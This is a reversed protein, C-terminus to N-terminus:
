VWFEERRIVEIQNMDWYRKEAAIVGRNEKRRSVRCNCAYGKREERITVIQRTGLHRGERKQAIAPSLCEAPVRSAKQSIFREFFRKASDEITKKRM